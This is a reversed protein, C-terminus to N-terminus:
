ILARAAGGRRRPSDGRRRHVLFHGPGDDPEQLAELLRTVAADEAALRDAFDDIAHELTLLAPCESGQRATTVVEGADGPNQPLDVGIIRPLEADLLQRPLGPHAERGEVVVELQHRRTRRELIELSDPEVVGLPEHSVLSVVRTGGRPRDPVLARRLEAPLEFPEVADGGGLVGLLRPSAEHGTSATDSETAREAGRVGGPKTPSLQTKLM